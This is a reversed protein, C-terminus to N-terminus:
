KEATLYYDPPENNIGSIIARVKRLIIKVASNDWSEKDTNSGTFKLGTEKLLVQIESATYPRVHTEDKWFETTAVGINKINPVIAVFKGGPKLIKKINKLLIVLSARDFHELIHRAYVGDYKAAGEVALYKVIDKRIVKFEPPCKPNRDVGTAKIGLDRCIKLFDGGGSGLELINGGSKFMAAYKLQKQKNDM